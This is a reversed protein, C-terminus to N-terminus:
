RVPAVRRFGRPWVRRPIAKRGSRRIPPRSTPMASRCARRAGTRGRPRHRVDVPRDRRAHARREMGPQAAPGAAAGARGLGRGFRTSSRARPSSCTATTARRCRCCSSSRPARPPSAPTAHRADTRDRRPQAQEAHDFQRHHVRAPLAVFGFEASTFLSLDWALRRLDLLASAWRRSRPWRSSAARCSRTSRAVGAHARLGAGAHHPRADLPLNVGYGAARASRIPMSGACRTPARAARQRHLRRGVGGVVHGGVVRGRAAPAHLGAAAARKRGRRPGARSRAVERCLAQSARRAPGEAVAAHRGAGPRQPQPRHPDQPRRRRPTRDPAGRDGLPRGRLARRARVRRQPFGRGADGARARLGALEEATSSASAAAPGEAHARSAAIDHLFFERDLIVDDGALFRQIRADVKVGPKQWLLDSM